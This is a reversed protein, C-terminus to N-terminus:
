MDIGGIVEKRVVTPSVSASGSDMTLNKAQIEWIGKRSKKWVNLYSPIKYLIPNKEKVSKILL